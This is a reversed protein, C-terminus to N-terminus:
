QRNGGKKTGELARRQMMETWTPGAPLGPTKLTPLGRQALLDIARDIPIAATGTNRDIWRYGNLIADERRRLAELDLAPNTQLSPQPFPRRSSQIPALIVGEEHQTQESLHQFLLATGITSLILGLVLMAAVAGIAGPDMDRPEYGPADADRLPPPESPNM